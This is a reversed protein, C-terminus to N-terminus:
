YLHGRYDRASMFNDLEIEVLEEEIELPEEETRSGGKTLVGFVGLVIM